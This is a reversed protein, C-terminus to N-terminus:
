TAAARRSRRGSSFDGLPAGGLLDPIRVPKGAQVSHYAAVGILISYAGDKQSAKRRLPDAPPNPDFIDALLVPDGGGHGGSGMRVEVQRPLHDTAPLEYLYEKEERWREYPVEGTTGHVRHNGEEPFDVGDLWRQIQDNLDEMSHFTRGPLFAKEFFDFPREVKGKRTCDGPRCIQIENCIFGYACYGCLEGCGDSGCEKDECNPM